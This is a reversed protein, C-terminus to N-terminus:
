IKIFISNYDLLGKKFLKKQKGNLRIPSHEKHFAIAENRTLDKKHMIRKIKRNLKKRKTNKNM